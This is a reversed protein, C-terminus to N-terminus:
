GKGFSQQWVREYERPLEKAVREMSRSIFFKGEFGQGLRGRGRLPHESSREGKKRYRDKPDAGLFMRGGVPQDFYFRTPLIHTGIPGFSSKTGKPGLGWELSRWVFGTRADAVQMKPFGIGWMHTKKDNVLQAQFTQGPGFTFRGTLRDKGRHGSSNPRRIESRFVEEAYRYLDRMKARHAGDLGQEFHRYVEAIMFTNTVIGEVNMYLFRNGPISSRLKRAKSRATEYGM